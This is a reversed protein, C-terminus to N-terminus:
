VGAINLTYVFKEVGGDPYSKTLPRSLNDYTSTIAVGNANVTNTARDLADYDASSVRGFANSSATVLGQNNYYNTMSSFGSIVNTVRGLSDYNITMASGDPYVTSTLKGQNDHFHQTVLQEPKGLASTVSELAGCQCYGYATVTGLANTEYINRRM